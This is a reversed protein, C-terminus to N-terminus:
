FLKLFYWKITKLVKLIMTVVIQQLSYRLFTVTIINGRLIHIISYHLNFIVLTM